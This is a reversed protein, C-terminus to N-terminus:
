NTNLIMRKRKRKYYVINIPITILLLIFSLGMGILPMFWTILPLHQVIELHFVINDTVVKKPRISYLGDINIPIKVTDSMQKPDIKISKGRGYIRFDYNEPIPNDSFRIYLESNNPIYLICSNNMHGQFILKGRAWKFPEYTGAFVFSLIFVSFLIIYILGFRIKM